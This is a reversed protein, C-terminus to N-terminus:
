SRSSFKEREVCRRVKRQGRHIRRYMEVLAKSYEIWNLFDQWTRIRTVMLFVSVAVLDIVLCFLLFQGFARV